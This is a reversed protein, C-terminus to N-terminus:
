KIEPYRDANKRYYNVWQNDADVEVYDVFHGKKFAGNKANKLEQAKLIDEAALGYLERLDDIAQQVDAIEAAIEEPRAQAIEEAEEAIKHILALKHEEPTLQRFSPKAGSAIQHEVIKDRVLKSFKFKLM